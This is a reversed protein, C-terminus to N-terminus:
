RRASREMAARVHARLNPVSMLHATTIGLERAKVELESRRMRSVPIGVRTAPRPKPRWGDSM